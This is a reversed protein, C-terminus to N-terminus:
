ALLSPTLGPDVVQVVRIGLKKWADCVSSRDDVAVHVDFRGRIFVDFLEAKVVSDPRFDKNSRMFLADYSIDHKELWAHTQM